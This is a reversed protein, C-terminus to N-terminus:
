NGAPYFYFSQEARLTGDNAFVAMREAPTVSAPGRENTVEAVFDVIATKAAEENRSPRPDELATSAADGCSWGMIPFGAPLYRTVARRTM